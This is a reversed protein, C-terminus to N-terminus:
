VVAKPVSDASLSVTARKLEDDSDDIASLRSALDATVESLLVFISPIEAPITPLDAEGLGRLVEAVGELSLAVESQTWVEPRSADKGIVGPRTRALWSLVQGLQRGTITVPVDRDEGFFHAARYWTITVDSLPIAQKPVAALAVRKKGM